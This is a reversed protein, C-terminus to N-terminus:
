DRRLIETSIIGLSSYDTSRERSVLTELEATDLEALVRLLQPFAKSRGAIRVRRGTREELFQEVDKLAPLFERNVFAMNLKRLASEKNPFEKVIAEFTSTGIARSGKQTENRASSHRARRKIQDKPLDSQKSVADLVSDSGFESFLLAITKELFAPSM